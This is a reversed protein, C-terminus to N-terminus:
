VDVDVKDVVVVLVVMPISNWLGRQSMSCLVVVEVVVDEELVAVEVVVVDCVAVEEVVVVRVAVEEVVVVAVAVEVGVLVAVAVEVEMALGPSSASLQSKPKGGHAPATSPHQQFPL